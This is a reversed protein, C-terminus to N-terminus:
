VLQWDSMAKPHIRKQYDLGRKLESRLASEPIKNFITEWSVTSNEHQNAFNRIRFELGLLTVIITEINDPFIEKLALGYNSTESIEDLKFGEEFKAETLVLTKKAPFYFALDPKKKQIDGKNNEFILKEFNLKKLLYDKQNRISFLYERLATFEFFLRADKYDDETFLSSLNDSHWEFYNKLANKDYLFWAFLHACYHREERSVIDQFNSILGNNM